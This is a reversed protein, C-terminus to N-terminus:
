LPPPSLPTPPAPLYGTCGSVFILDGSIVARSYGIQSEFPSSTTILTKKNPAADPTPMPASESMM